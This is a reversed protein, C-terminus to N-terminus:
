PCPTPQLLGLHGARLLAAREDAPVLEVEAEADRDPEAVHTGPQGPFTQLTCGADELASAADHM